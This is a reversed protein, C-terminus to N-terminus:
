HMGRRIVRNDSHSMELSEMIMRKLAKISMERCDLIGQCVESEIKKHILTNQDPISLFAIKCQAFCVDRIRHIYNSISESRWPRPIIESQTGDALKIM